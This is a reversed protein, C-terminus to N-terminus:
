ASAGVPVGGLVADRSDEALARLRALDVGVLRGHRKRVTGGVLVTDVNATGASTVVTAVPDLLPVTNVADARVLVVDAAKGPTLTGTRDGLGSAVAGHRTAMELVGTHTLDPAFPVDVDDGLGAIRGAALATRMQTFMDGPVSTAVDVSLSPALGRDRARGIPPHGHGMLMEVYPAISLTGGTAAIRDLEADTTTNAHIYTTDPGLLGAADLEAVAATRMDTVRMGVHVSIRAALDRALRWDAAVVEPTTFGPGRVALAFTLLGDDSAFYRERVRRADAPHPHVSGLWWDGRAPTGHAYVARIGAETLARVGADAHEPTNNAHAWDLLTTIGADLAELAGLLTGAYVDQPRVVPGVVGALHGLYGDLTTAPLAGRLVTEWTHRHTDVFGPIVVTGTADIREADVHGLDRGVAAIRGGDILVDVGTGSEVQPDVPVVVGGTILTRTSM